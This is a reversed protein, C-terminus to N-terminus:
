WRMGGMGGSQLRMGQGGAPQMMGGMAGMGGMGGMGRARQQQQPDEEPEEMVTVQSMMNPSIGGANRIAEAIGLGNPSRAFGGVVYPLSAVKSDMMNSRGYSTRPRVNRQESTAAPASASALTRKEGLVSSMSPQPYASRAPAPASSGGRLVSSFPTSSAAGTTTTTTTGQPANTAAAASASALSQVLQGSRFREQGPFQHHQQQQQGQAGGLGLEAAATGSIVGGQHMMDIMRLTDKLKADTAEKQQREAALQKKYQELEAKISEAGKRETDIQRKANRGAVDIMDIMGMIDEQRQPDDRVEKSATVFSKVSDGIRRILARKEPTDADVEWEEISPLLAQARDHAEKIRNARTEQALKVLGDANNTGLLDKTAESYMALQQQMEQMKKQM